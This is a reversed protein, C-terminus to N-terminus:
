ADYEKQKTSLTKCGLYCVADAPNNRTIFAALSLSATVSASAFAALNSASTDQMWAPALLWNRNKEYANTITRYKRLNPARSILRAKFFFASPYGFNRPRRSSFIAGPGQVGAFLNPSASVTSGFVPARVGFSPAGLNRARAIILNM